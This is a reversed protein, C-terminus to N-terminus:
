SFGAAEVRRRGAFGYAAPHYWGLEREGELWCLLVPEGALESPFDLLLPAVGKVELGAASFWGVIESLRAQFGKAEPLGGLPSGSGTGLASQVEVLNARIEILESAKALLEPMLDRAAALTFTRDMAALGAQSCIGADVAPDTGSAADSGAVTPGPRMPVAYPLAGSSSLQAVGAVGPV